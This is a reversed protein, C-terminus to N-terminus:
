KRNGKPFKTLEKDPEAIQFATVEVEQAESALQRFIARQVSGPLDIANASDDGVANKVVDAIDNELLLTLEGSAIWNLTVRKM